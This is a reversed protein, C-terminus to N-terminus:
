FTSVAIERSKGIETIVWFQFLFYISTDFYLFSICLKNMQTWTLDKCKGMIQLLVYFMFFSYRHFNKWVNFRFYMIGLKDFDRLVQFSFKSWQLITYSIEMWAMLCVKTCISTSFVKDIYIYLTSWMICFIFYKKRKLQM